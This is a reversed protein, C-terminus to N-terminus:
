IPLALNLTLFAASAQKLAQKLFPPGVIKSAGYLIHGPWNQLGLMQLQLHFLLNITFLLRISVLIHCKNWVTCSVIMFASLPKM